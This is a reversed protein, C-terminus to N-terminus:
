GNALALVEAATLATSYIRVDDIKGKFYNGTTTDGARKAGIYLPDATVAITGTKAATTVAIGDVYLTMKAGDYTGTILHWANTTPLAATISGVGKLDFKLLGNEALLRYQNDTLGKQLIRRNGSWDTANIWASLTIAATPNLSAASTVTAYQSSGNLNLANGTKGAVFTAAGAVTGNAGNGSSDAASTGAAEDFKYWAVPTSASAANTTVTIPGSKASPNGAADFAQVAYTYATSPTRGTDTYTATTTSGIKVADRFVDYRTVGVADTSATWTLSVSTSTKSVVTPTGPTSPPVTDVVGVGALNQVEALTLARSYIVVEDIQGKFYNGTTTDGAKKAGIYLPDATVAIAGTKAATTLAIGDVYLTMKAGDYTGTILHWANTTPLAATISGVGKLDFKLLGNEALLRYQNDTAGKQLIRRNGSWDTAKVWANLTIGSTTNILANNTASAYQNTGNLTLANGSKGATFTAGNFLTAPNNTSSFDSATTGSTENFRYYARIENPVGADNDAITVKAYIASGLAYAPDVSLRLYVDEAGEDKTDDIPVLTVTATSQGAPIVVVGNLAQYDVGNIVQNAFPDVDMFYHVTLADLTSGTRTFTFIGTDSPEAANPDTAVVTVVPLPEITVTTVASEGSANGAADIALISFNYTGPSMQMLTVTSGSLYSPTILTGNAFVRFYHGAPLAPVNFTPTSDTTIRDTNNTGTDSATQLVLPDVPTKDALLRAVAFYGTGGQTVLNGVVVIKGNADIGIAYGYGGVGTPLVTQAANPGFSEDATGDSNFRAASMRGSWYAAVIRGKSDLSMDQLFEATTFRNSIAVGNLGFSGDLSLNTNYRILLTNDAATSASLENQGGILIKGDPQVLISGVANSGTVATSVTGVTTDAKGTSFIRGLVIADGAARRGAIYVTGDPAVAFESISVLAGSFTFTGMGTGNFTLDPAGDATLRFVRMQSSSGADMVLLRGDAMRRLVSEVLGAGGNLSYVGNTAFTTDIQGNATLRVVATHKSTSGMVCGLLIRGDALVEVDKVTGTGLSTLTSWGNTGFTTDVNGNTLLRTVQVYRSGPTPEATEGAVIILGDTRFAMATAQGGQPPSLLKYGSTGFALDMGQSIPWATTDRTVITAQSQSSENGATDAVSATYSYSGDALRYNDGLNTRPLNLYNVKVGDRYLRYLDANGISFDLTEANTLNDTSSIGSDSAGVLDPALPAAPPTTDITVSLSPSAASEALGAVTQTATFLQVGDPLTGPVTIYTLFAKAVTSTVLSGNRYLKLTAGAVTNPVIFTVKGTVGNFRTINDASSTGSDSADVLNPAGPINSAPRAGFSQSASNTTGDVTVAHGLSYSASMNWIAVAMAEVNLRQYSTNTNTVSDNEDDGDFITTGSTKILNIFEADTLRRGLELEALQQAIVAAGAVHPAAASTGNFNLTGGGIAATTIVSGPAFLFSGQWRQSYSAIRDPATTYDTSKAWTVAGVNADYVAGVSLINPDSAPYAVGPANYVGYDNGASAVVIINMSALTSLEDSMSQVQTANSNSGDGLSLNVSVINYQAANTIVWQLAREAPSLSGIITGGMAKLSVINAGPAMGQYTGNSSAAISSVATGHGDNDGIIDASTNPTTGSFEAQYVIRDAVGNGDADPGFFPNAADIGTDIIAISYGTGDARNFRADNRLTDLSILTNSQQASMDVPGVPAAGLNVTTAATPSTLSWGLATEEAVYYTGASLGTFSYDGNANTQTFAEGAERTRSRNADLYVTWGSLGAEAADRLKNANADNWLNGSISSSLLQRTELLEIACVVARRGKQNKM